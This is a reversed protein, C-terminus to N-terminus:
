RSRSRTSRSAPSCRRWTTSPTSRSARSASRASRAARPRLRPGDADAHRVRDLPRAPRPRAPLPLARQDGRRHRLRRVPADDLAAGPVDVPLRRPHVPARGPHGLKEAPDLGALDEDTYLPEIPHGSITEFLADRERRRRTSRRGGSIRAGVRKPSSRWRARLRPRRSARDAPPTPPGRGSPRSRPPSRSCRRSTARAQRRAPDGLPLGSRPSAPRCRPRPSAPTTGSRRHLLLTRSM